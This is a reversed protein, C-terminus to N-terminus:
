PLHRARSPMRSSGSTSPPSSGEVEVEEYSVGAGIRELATPHTGFLDHWIAPPDPQSINRLVLRRELGIFSRPDRTLELAFSDARAEVRRSLVNGAIGVAFSVLAFALV